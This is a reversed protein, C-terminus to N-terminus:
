GPDLLTTSEPLKKGGRSQTASQPEAVPSGGARRHPPALHWPPLLKVPEGVCIVEPGTWM